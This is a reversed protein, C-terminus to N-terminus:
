DDPVLDTVSQHARRGSVLVRAISWDNRLVNVAEVVDDVARARKLIIQIVLNCFKVLFRTSRARTSRLACSAGRPSRASDPFVSRGPSTASSTRVAHPTRYSRMSFNSWSAYGTARAKWPFTSWCAIVTLLPLLTQSAICSFIPSATGSTFVAFVANITHSTAVSLLPRGAM